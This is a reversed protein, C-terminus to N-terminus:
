DYNHFLNLLLNNVRDHKSSLFLQQNYQCDKLVSQFWMHPDQQAVEKVTDRVQNWRKTNDQEWDYSSDIAHDFTRYGLKRLTNLSGPPGVIIFPHGHKLCKFTKETLFAGNSGDADFHTELVISCYSNNYHEPVHLHHDNHQDGTLSDCTHPCEMQFRAIDRRLNKISDIEIPNDEPQDGCLIDFNYSWQSQDLIGHRWLDTM